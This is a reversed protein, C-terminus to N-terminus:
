KWLQWWKKDSASAEMVAATAVVESIEAFAANNPVTLKVARFCGNQLPLVGIATEIGAHMQEFKDVQQTTWGQPDPCPIIVENM